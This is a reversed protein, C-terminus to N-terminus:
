QSLGQSFPSHSDNLLADIEARMENVFRQESFSEARERLQRPEFRMTEFREMAEVLSETTHEQFHVGDIGDRVTDLLGGRGYGVVPCGCALAELPVIGFDEEGPFLLGRSRCLIEWKDRSAPVRGVFEVQAHMERALKELNKRESGDGIVVLKRGMKACARIALDAKKYPVLQGLFAYPADAERARTYDMDEGPIEVPPFVVNAKRRWRRAIRNAVCSSNAVFRDVRFSSVVDWMRLRHSLYRIIPRLLLNKTRVYEERMDWLYRMPTHCYCLHPTDAPLIVGKAPGSELSIVLDYGKLNFQELALPMLPLYYQYFKRSLPLRDIFSTHITHRLILPSINDRNLCHTYIDADPFMRCLSELVSEGGRMDVLWYQILAVKM